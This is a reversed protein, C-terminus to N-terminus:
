CTTVSELRRPVYSNMSIMVGDPFFGDEEELFDNDEDSTSNMGVLAAAAAGPM